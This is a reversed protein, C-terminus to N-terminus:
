HVAARRGFLRGDLGDVVDAFRAVVLVGAWAGVAGVLMGAVTDSTWHMGLYVRSGASVLVLLSAVVGFVAREARSAAPVALLAIGAVLATTGTVHGSPFSHAAEHAELQVAFPPRRRDVLLKLVEAAAAAGGVGIILAAGRRVSRDRFVFLGAVLAALVVTTAPSFVTSYAKAFSTMWESRHGVVARTVLRDNHLPGGITAVAALLVALAAVAAVAWRTLSPTGATDTSRM